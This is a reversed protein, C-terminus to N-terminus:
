LHTVIGVAKGAVELVKNIITMITQIQDIKKNGEAIIEKADAISKLADLYSQDSDRLDKLVAKNALDVLKDQLNLLAESYEDGYTLSLNNLIEGLENLQTILQKAAM